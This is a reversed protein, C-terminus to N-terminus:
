PATLHALALRTVAAPQQVNALHAAHQVVAVRAGAIGAAIREGHDPPAAPDDAGVIVLTPARIAGLSGSLDLDAIAECCSAYGEAPTAAVMARMRGVLDPDRRVLDPTLWRDVVTAAVATTGEARVLAARDTWAAPPGLRASTCLLMLREVRDPAQAALWMGTMGGLSLGCFSAREVGLHDLLALVDGGLDDIRYPGAPVPSGGHGRHDYRVVRFREALPRLQPEGMAMTTGLSNSLVLVPADDPGDVAYHVALTM